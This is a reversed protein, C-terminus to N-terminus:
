ATGGNDEDTNTYTSPAIGADLLLRLLPTANALSMAADLKIRVEGDASVTLSLVPATALPRVVTQQPEPVVDLPLKRPLLDAEAIGLKKALVQRVTESPAKNGRLVPYLITNNRRYGCAENLDAVSWERANMVTRLAAAIHGNEALQQPTASSKLYDNIM